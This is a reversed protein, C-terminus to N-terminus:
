AHLTAYEKEWRANRKAVAKKLAKNIEKMIWIPGHFLVRCNNVLLSCSGSELKHLQFEGVNWSKKNHFTEHSDIMSCMEDIAEILEEAYTGGSVVQFGGAGDYM